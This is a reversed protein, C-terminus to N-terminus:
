SRDLAREDAVGLIRSRAIIANPASIARTPSGENIEEDRIRHKSRTSSRGLVARADPSMDAGPPNQLIVKALHGSAPLQDTEIV